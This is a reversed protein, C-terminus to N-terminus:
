VSSRRWVIALFNLKVKSVYTRTEKIHGDISIRFRLYM